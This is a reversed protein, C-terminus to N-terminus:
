VLSVFVHKIFSINIRLWKTDACCFSNSSAMKIILSDLVRGGWFPVVPVSILSNQLLIIKIEFTKWTKIEFVNKKKELVKRTIAGFLIRGLITMCTNTVIKLNSYLWTLTFIETTSPFSIYAPASNINSRGPLLIICILTLCKSKICLSYM